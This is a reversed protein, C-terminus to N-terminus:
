GVACSTYSFAGLSKGRESKAGAVRLLLRSPAKPKMVEKASPGPDDYGLLFAIHHPALDIWLNPHAKLVSGRPQIQSAADKTELPHHIVSRAQVDATGLRRTKGNLAAEIAAQTAPHIPMM